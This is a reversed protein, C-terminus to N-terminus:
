GRPQSTTTKKVIVKTAVMKDGEKSFFVTVPAGAAVSEIEVPNGAEDVYTTTESFQYTIPSASPSTRIVIMDPGITSVTGSSNTTTTTTTTTTKKQQVEEALASPAYLALSLLTLGCLTLFANKKMTTERNIARRM